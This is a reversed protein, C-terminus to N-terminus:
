LPHAKGDGCGSKWLLVFTQMDAELVVWTLYKVSINAITLLPQGSLLTQFWRPFLARPLDTLSNQCQTLQLPFAQGLYLLADDIPQCELTSLLFFTLLVCSNVEKAERGHMGLWLGWPSGGPRGVVAHHVSGWVTLWVFREEKISDRDHCNSLLGSSCKSTKRQLRNLQSLRPWDTMAVTSKWLTPNEWLVNRFLSTELCCEGPCISVVLWHHFDGGNGRGNCKRYRWLLRQRECVQFFYSKNRPKKQHQKKSKIFYSLFSFCVRPWPLAHFARGPRCEWRKGKPLQFCSQFCSRTEM